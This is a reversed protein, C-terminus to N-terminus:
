MCLYLNNSNLFLCGGRVMEDCDAPRDVLEMFEEEVSWFGHVKSCTNM